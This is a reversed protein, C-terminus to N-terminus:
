LLSSANYLFYGDRALETTDLCGPLPCLLCTHVEGMCVCSPRRIASLGSHATVM